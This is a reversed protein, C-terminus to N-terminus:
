NNSTGLVAAAAEPSPPIMAGLVREMAMTHSCLGHTGFYRCGCSWKGAQFSVSYTNNDGELKVDFHTFIVRRNAEAAYRKAKEIKGIMSSDM